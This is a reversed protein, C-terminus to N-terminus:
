IMDQRLGHIGKDTNATQKAAWPKVPAAHRLWSSIMPHRTGPRHDSVGNDGRDAIPIPVPRARHRILFSRPDLRTDRFPENNGHM